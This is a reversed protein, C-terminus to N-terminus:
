AMSCMRKGGGKNFLSVERLLGNRAKPNSDVISIYLLFLTCFRQRLLSIKQYLVSRKHDRFLVHLNASNSCEPKITGVLDAKLLKYSFCNQSFWDKFILILLVPWHKVGSCHLKELSSFLIQWPQLRVDQQIVLYQIYHTHTKTYSPPGM